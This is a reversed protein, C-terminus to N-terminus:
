DELEKTSFLNRQASVCLGNLSDRIEETLRGRNMYIAKELFRKGERSSFEAFIGHRAGVVVIAEDPNETTVKEFSQYRSKSYNSIYRGKPTKGVAVASNFQDTSSALSAEYGSFNATSVYISERLYTTDKPALEAADAAVQLATNFTASRIAARVNTRIKQIAKLNLRNRTDAM